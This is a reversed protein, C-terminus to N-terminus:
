FFCPLMVENQQKPFADFKAGQMEFELNRGRRFREIRRLLPQNNIKQHQWTLLLDAYGRKGVEFRLQIEAGQM